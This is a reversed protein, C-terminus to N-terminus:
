KFFLQLDDHSKELLDMYNEFTLNKLGGNTYIGARDVIRTIILQEDTPPPTTKVVPAVKLDWSVNAKIEDVTIGEHLSDLYAERTEPDFRFICKNTIISAPGGSPLGAKERSNYGDIYGPSTIYDVRELFRRKELPLTIITRRASSAIDNAGGSGPLRSAPRHYDGEGYIATSNLNGYKDVQAGGIMGVDFFGCQQDSFLRWLSTTCISNEVCSNDGIGLIIRYPFPGISGSEMAMILNPAHTLKAVLAGLLPVGVGAFVVDGDNIERASAAVLLEQLNYGTGNNNM